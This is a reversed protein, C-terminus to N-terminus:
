DGQVDATLFHGFSDRVAESIEPETTQGPAAAEVSDFDSMGKAVSRVFAFETFANVQAFDAEDLDV